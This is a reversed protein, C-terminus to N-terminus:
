TGISLVNKGCKLLQRSEECKDNLIKRLFVNGCAIRINEDMIVKDKLFM